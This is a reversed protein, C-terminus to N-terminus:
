ESGAAAKPDASGTDAPAVDRVVGNADITVPVPAVDAGERLNSLGDIILQDGPELGATVIWANAHTGNAELKRQVAKNDPGAIWATLAGDRGRTTARQPVLFAEVTGLVVEGRLFMGPLIRRDPNDFRFRIDQTGTSPSVTVSPAILTGGSNHSQGNELTLTVELTENPKLEGREIQDQISLIRASPEFMDVYIPDLRTVIAMADAQGATVLDGVSIQAVGAIGEIPSAVETWSLETEAIKLAAEASLVDARAQAATAEASEVTARTSGSGELKKARDLAAEAVPVAAQARALAARASQTAAEYSTRDLRFMPTGPSIPQGPSYLIDTVVGGVRPRIETQEFAVARGPLTYSRKVAARQMDIIGVKAPGRAAGAPPTQAQVASAALALLVAVIKLGPRYFQKM